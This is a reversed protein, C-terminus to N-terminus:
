GPEGPAPWRGNAEHFAIAALLPSVDYQSPIVSLKPGSTSRVILMPRGNQAESYRYDRIEAYVITHERGTSTRFHVADPGAAVYWNRYLLLFMVGGVIMAASAIRMGLLDPATDSTVAVLGILLGAGVVLWGLLPVFKPLRVREPHKKSRNPHRAAWWTAAAVFLAVFVELASGLIDESTM